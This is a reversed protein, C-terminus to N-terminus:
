MGVGDSQEFDDHPSVNVTIRTTESKELDGGAEAVWFKVKGGGTRRITVDLEITADVFNITKGGEDAGNRLEAGLAHLVDALGIDHTTMHAVTRGIQEWEAVDHRVPPAVAPSEIL